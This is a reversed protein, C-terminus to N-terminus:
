YKQSPHVTLSRQMVRLYKSNLGGFIRLFEEPLRHHNRPLRKRYAAMSLQAIGGTM